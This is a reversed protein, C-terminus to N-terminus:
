SKLRLIEWNKWNRQYHYSVQKISSQINQINKAQEEAESSMSVQHGCHINAQSLGQLKAAIKLAKEQISQGKKSLNNMRNKLLKANEHEFQINEKALTIQVDLKQHLLKIKEIRAKIEKEAVTDLTEMGRVSDDLLKKRVQKNVNMVSQLQYVMSTQMSLVDELESNDKNTELDDNLSDSVLNPISLTCSTSVSSKLFEIDSSCSIVKNPVKCAQDKSLLTLYQHLREKLYSSLDSMSMQAPEDESLYNRVLDGIRFNDESSSTPM